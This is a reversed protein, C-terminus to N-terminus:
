KWARAPSASDSRCTECKKGKNRGCQIDITKPLVYPRTMSALHTPKSRLQETPAIWMASRLYQVSSRARTPCTTLFIGVGCRLPRMSWLKSSAVTNGARRYSTYDLGDPLDVYKISMAYPKLMEAAMDRGNRGAEDPDYAFWLLKTESTNAWQPKWTGSWWDPHGLELIWRPPSCPTLRASLLRLAQSDTKSQKSSAGWLQNPTSTTRQM